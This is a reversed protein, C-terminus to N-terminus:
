ATRRSESPQEGHAEGALQGIAHKLCRQDTSHQEIGFTVGIREGDCTAHCHQQERVRDDTREGSREEVM